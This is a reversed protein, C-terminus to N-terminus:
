TSRGRRRPRAPALVEDLTRFPPPSFWTRLEQLADLVIALRILSVLAIQGTREFRKLTGLSVGARDALGQQSLNQALRLARARQALDLAVQDPSMM